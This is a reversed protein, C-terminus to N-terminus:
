VAGWVKRVSSLVLKVDPDLQPTLRAVFGDPSGLVGFPADKRKFFRVAQIIAAEKVAKPISSWGWRATVEIGRTASPLTVGSECVALTWPKGFAAANWPELRYDTDLVKTTEFVGDGDEDAKLALSTTTMLDDLDVVWRGREADLRATYYRASASTPPTFRRDTYHDIAATTAAIAALLEGDDNADTIRLASRLEAPSVYGSAAAGHEVVEVTFETSEQIAGSGFTVRWWALYEGATNLDSAGWDYRVAGTAATVITAATDVKLTGDSARMRLKVTAGTLDVGLTDTLSPSTTDKFYRISM